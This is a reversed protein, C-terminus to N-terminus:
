RLFHLIQSFGLTDMQNFYVDQTTWFPFSCPSFDTKSTPSMNPLLVYKVEILLPIKKAGTSCMTEAECSLIEEWSFVEVDSGAAQLLTQPPLYERFPLATIGSLCQYIVSILPGPPYSGATTTFYLDLQMDQKQQKEKFSGHFQM